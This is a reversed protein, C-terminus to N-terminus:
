GDYMVYDRVVADVLSTLASGTAPRFDKFDLPMHSSRLLEGEQQCEGNRAQSNQKDRWDLVRRAVDLGVEKRRRSESAHYENGDGDPPNSELASHLLFGCIIGILLLGVRGLVFYTIAGLGVLCAILVENSASSLFQLLKETLHKAKPAASAPAGRRPPSTPADGM